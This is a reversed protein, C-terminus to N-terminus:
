GAPGTAPRHLRGHVAVTASGLGPLRPRVRRQLALHPAVQLIWPTGRHRIMGAPSELLRAAPTMSAPRCPRQDEIGAAARAAGRDMERPGPGFCQHDAHILGSCPQLARCRAKGMGIVTEKQLGLRRIEETEGPAFAPARRPLVQQIRVGPRTRGMQAPPPVAMGDKRGQKGQATGQFQAAVPPEIELFEPQGQVQSINRHAPRFEQRGARGPGVELGLVRGTIMCQEAEARLQPAILRRKPLARVASASVYTKRMRNAPEYTTNSGLFVRIIFAYNM